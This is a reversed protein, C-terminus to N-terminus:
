RLGTRGFKRPQTLYIHQDCEPNNHYLMYKATELYARTLHEMEAAVAPYRDILNEGADDEEFSWLQPSDGDLTMKFCFRDDILGVQLPMGLQMIFARRDSDFRPDFLDRGLTNNIYHQGALSAVTPLVDAEGAVQTFVEAKPILKPSYIILPVRFIGLQAQVDAESVHEGPFGPIGHDAHFVFITDDLYGSKKAMQMFQGVSHDMFRCSNFHEVSHFGWRQLQNTDLDKYEFGANDDPITYPRHNGATHIVALFPKTQKQFVKDAERFLDLDSIGWVDARPASYSGEEYIHLDSLNHMLLGRINGWSISGGLFYFKDYGSFCNAISHQGVARPNRSSTGHTEVDPIGTLLCFVSRATSAVPTFFNKFYYGDRALADINPTPNLPNGSLGTKHTAMSELLVIVVNPSKAPTHLPLGARHFDLTTEDPHGVGLWGATEAYYARVLDEDYVAGGGNRLTDSFYLVPHLAVQSVFNHESFFADSWRLPYYSFKGYLGALFFVAMAVNVAARAKWGLPQAASRGCYQILRHLSYALLATCAAVVLSLTVAPYTEWVMQLSIGLNSLFHLATVDVRTELYAYHGFDVMYFLLTTISTATLYVVWFVKAARHRFPNLWPLGGLLFLPLLLLLTFRLDYKLGLYFATLLEGPPAPNDAAAFQFWFGVRLISFVALCLPVVIVLFRPLSPIREMIAEQSFPM